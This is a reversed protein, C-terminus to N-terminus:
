SAQRAPILGETILARVAAPRKSVRQVFALVNPFAGLDFDIVRSWNLVVFAYADAVSFDSGLLYARGDALRQELHNVRRAIKKRVATAEEEDLDRGSFFPSYAKHLESALFNLLEQLRTRAFSGNPPALGADPANDALYQLIAPNETIVDGDDTQLAPVYGNPNVSLFDIGSETTATETDTKELEFRFDLENLIIHSALSCAGPKYFLKM